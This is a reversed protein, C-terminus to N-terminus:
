KKNRIIQIKQPTYELLKVGGPLKFDVTAFDNKLKETRITAVINRSNLKRVINEPGQVMVSVKQPIISINEKLSYRIPILSITKSVIKLKTVQLTIKKKLLQVNPKPKILAIELKDNKLMKRSINTTQVKKLKSIISSPGKVAVSQNINKIQNKLFFEEDKSSAFRIEIPVSKTSIKDLYVTIIDKKIDLIKFNKQPPLELNQKTLHIKNEGYHFNAANIRFSHKAKKLSILDLGRAEITVPISAINDSLIVYNAPVNEVYIPFTIDTTQEKLLVQQFWLLIAIILALIKLFLYKKM